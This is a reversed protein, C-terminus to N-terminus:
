SEEFVKEAIMLTSDDPDRRITFGMERELELARHDDWSEISQMRKVGMAKAYRTVHELLTWSIGLRKSETRTCMAFEATEFKEDATLMASALVKGSNEDIALFDITQPDDDCTMAEIRDKGVKRIGTLFRFYLDEPTVHEFFNELAHVDSPTAPTAFFTVGCRTTLFGSWDKEAVVNSFCRPDATRVAKDPSVQTATANM